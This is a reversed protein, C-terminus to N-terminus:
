FGGGTKFGGSGRGRSGGGSPIRFGGGGRRSSPFNWTSRRSGSRVGELVGEALIDAIEGFGGSGFNPAAGINRYRQNRQIVRWVDSGSIVGQMFQELAGTLLIKNSFGSRVDDYRSNKFNRRVGELEKLRLIKSQHLYRVDSLDEDIEDLQDDISQLELVMNDDTPTMTAQVYKHVSQLHQHKLADSLCKVSRQLYDDEGASFRAREDLKGNLKDEAQEMEDDFSDLAERQVDLAVKLEETGADVLQALEYQQVEMHADDAAQIAKNAHQQLRKPIENLNWYNVRADEYKIIRAVWADMFRAFFGAKYETTGYGREYLYIFLKDAKYPVSKDAMDKLAIEVKRYSEQAISDVEKAYELKSLYDSDGKLKEQVRAEVDVLDQSAVDLKTLLTERENESQLLEQNLQEIETNLDQLAVDRQQLIAVAEQDAVSMTQQLDGKEIASLRIKAIENILHNRRQQSSTVSTTLKSLQTDLRILENRITQLSGDISHLASRGSWLGASNVM